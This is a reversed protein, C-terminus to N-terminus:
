DSEENVHHNRAVLRLHKQFWRAYVLLTRFCTLMPVKASINVISTSCVNTMLCGKIATEEKEMTKIRVAHRIQLNISDGM